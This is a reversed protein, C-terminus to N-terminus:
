HDFTVESLCKRFPFNLARSAPFSTKNQVASYPAKYVSMSMWSPFLFQVPFMCPGDQKVLSGLYYVSSPIIQDNIVLTM